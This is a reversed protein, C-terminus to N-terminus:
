EEVPDSYGQRAERTNCNLPTEWSEPNRSNATTTTATFLARSSERTPTQVDAM